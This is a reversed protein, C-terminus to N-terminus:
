DNGTLNYAVKESCYNTNNTNYVFGVGLNAKNLPVKTSTNGHGYQVLNADNTQIHRYNNVASVHSYKSDVHLNQACKRDVFTSKNVSNVMLTIKSM